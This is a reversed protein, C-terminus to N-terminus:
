RDIDELKEDILPGMQHCMALIVLNLSVYTFMAFTLVDRMSIWILSVLDCLLPFTLM